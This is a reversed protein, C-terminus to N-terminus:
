SDESPNQSRTTIPLWALSLIQHRRAYPNSDRRECLFLGHSDWPRKRHSSRSETLGRVGRDSVHSRGLSFKRRRRKTARVSESCCFVGEVVEKLAFKPRVGLSPPPKSGGPRAARIENNILSKPMKLTVFVMVRIETLCSICLLKCAASCVASVSVM